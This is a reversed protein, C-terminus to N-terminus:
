RSLIARCGRGCDRVHLIWAGRGPSLIGHRSSRDFIAARRHRVHHFHEYQLPSELRGRQKSCGSHVQSHSRRGPPFFDNADVLWKTTSLARIHVKKPAIILPQPNKMFALPRFIVSRVVFRALILYSPGILGDCTLKGLKSTTSQSVGSDSNTSMRGACSRQPILYANIWVM